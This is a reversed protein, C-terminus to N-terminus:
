RPTNIPKSPQATNQQATSVRELWKELRKVQRSIEWWADEAHELRRDLYTLYDLASLIENRSLKIDAETKM